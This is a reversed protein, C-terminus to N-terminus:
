VVGLEITSEEVFSLRESGVVRACACVFLKPLSIPIPPLPGHGFPICRQVFHVQEYSCSSAFRSLHGPPM